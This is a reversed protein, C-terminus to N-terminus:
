FDLDFGFRVYRPTQYAIPKFRNASLAGQNTEGREEFSTVADQNFVNFIDARLVLNGGLPIIKEPVTYRVSLDLNTQWDTELLSGRPVPGKPQGPLACYRSAAGYASANGDTPHVGLCGQHKPSIVSANAGFMLNDTVAYTGFAKFQHAHHNPLLGYQYDTLGKFDYLVTSGADAQQNDSLVTGEYNGKSESLTYSGQLGWKGDFAREFTFELSIYERKPAPMGLTDKTFTLTKPMAALDAITQATHVASNPQRLNITVDEGPNFVIYQWSGNYVTACADKTVQPLASAACWDAIYPDLTM